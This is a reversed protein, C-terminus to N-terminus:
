LQASFFKHRLIEYCKEMEVIAADSSIDSIAFLVAFGSDEGSTLFPHETKMKKYLENAKRAVKEYDRDVVMDSIVFASLPLYLSSRFEMKLIEYIKLVERMKREIDEAFSLMTALALMQTSKFNSFM